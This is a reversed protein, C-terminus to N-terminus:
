GMRRHRHRHHIDPYHPHWHTLPEHVHDHTHPEGPPDNPDHGHQHHEDHVHRHSHVLREHEHEHGHRESLHLWVGAGMLLGAGALPLRLQERLLGLSAVAGIFPAVSFYAGTRATGIGRLALVFLYLSMGYGVFGVIMALAILGVSPLPAGLTLAAGVNVCGAAAGKIAAIQFPDAASIRQTLNNDLAWCVCAGAIALSALPLGVRGEQPWSLAVGGTVILLMGLAIRRDYNERFVFWAVAATFAGELNLLLSAASAPTARLGWMLLVPGLVGGLFVGGTLSPLDKRALRAERGGSPLVAWLLALGLGSGAYFLGALLVPPVDELLRKAFPTSLGFLAAAALAFFIGGRGQPRNTM